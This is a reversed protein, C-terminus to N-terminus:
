EGVKICSVIYGSTVVDNLLPHSCNQIAQIHRTMFSQTQIGVTPLTRLANVTEVVDSEITSHTVISGSLRINKFVFKIFDAANIQEGVFIVADLGTTSFLRERIWTCQQPTSPEKLEDSEYDMPEDVCPTPSKYDGNLVRYFNQWRIPRATCCIKM